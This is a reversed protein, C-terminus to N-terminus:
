GSRGLISLAKKLIENETRLRKLEKELGLVVSPDESSSASHRAQARWKYLVGESVGMQQSVEQVSRGYDLQRLARTKFEPDYKRYKRKGPQTSKQPASEQEM